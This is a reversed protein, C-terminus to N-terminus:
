GSRARDNRERIALLSAAFSVVQTLREAPTLDLMARIQALDVGNEDLDPECPEPAAEAVDSM